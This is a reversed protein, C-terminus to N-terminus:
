INKNKNLNFYIIKQQIITLLNSVIYYLVLGSPCWLFFLTFLIPMYKIMKNQMPDKITSPSIKQIFFMTLGMIIPLVYYPDQDTLDRIWFIFPAHRLEVSSVLMYYLSLFIPMQIILPLCGGLPNVKEKKYLNLMEQSLKQKNDGFKENIIQIKPQLMRMKAASVYQAKTLPYMFLKIMCTIIIISLGWNRVFSYFFQLLKFMPQSIFWLWGYDVTLDLYPAVSSMKSQLEPGIWLDSSINKESGAPININVSKYGIAAVKNEDLSSTYFYNGTNNPIWATVFYQQLMAVWGKETFIDLNKKTINDFSYKKYKVKDTSYAAGRFANLTFNNKNKNLDEPLKITQKIQGFMKVNIPLLSNNKINYNVHIVYEGKKFSFTKIFTVKKNNEFNMSVDLKEDNNKIFNYQKQSSLFMPRDGLLPNDPGNEGILGSQIHYLYNPRTQLLLIANSSDLTEPYATLATKEIDGGRNNIILSFVDTDVKITNNKDSKNSDLFSNHNINKIKKLDIFNESQWTQWIIFSIFIFSILFFNRQSEMM